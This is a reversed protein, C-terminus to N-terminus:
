EGDDIRNLIEKFQNYTKTSRVEGRDVRDCFLKMADYMEPAAAILRGNEKFENISVHSCSVVAIVPTNKAGIIIEHSQQHRSHADWPAPTHKDKAM